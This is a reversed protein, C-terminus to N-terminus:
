PQGRTSHQSPPDAPHESDLGGLDGGVSVELLYPVLRCVVEVQPPCLGVEEQAERVATAVDDVDTPECKGGPFCM